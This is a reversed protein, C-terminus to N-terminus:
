NGQAANSRDRLLEEFLHLYKSAIALASFKALHAPAADRFGEMKAPDNLLDHIASALADPDCNPVTIGCPGIADPLGGSNTGVVACGCAIGELAVIGFPEAWASPVVLIKHRNAEEAIRPPSCSGLFVVQNGLGWELCMQKLPALESGDGVVTLKPLVGRQKLLRLALLLFSLGKEPIVRGVFILERERAASSCRRFITGDYPDPIVLGRLKLARALADSVSVTTSWRVVQRKLFAAFSARADRLSYETPLYIQMIIVRPRQAAIAPWTTRLGLQNQLIVDASLAIRLLEYQSPQRVVSFSYSDVDNSQTLTAITVRHGM